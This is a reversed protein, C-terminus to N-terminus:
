ALIRESVTSSPVSPPAFRQQIASKAAIKADYMASDAEELLATPLGAGTLAKCGIAGKVCLARGRWDVTLSNLQQELSELRRVLAVANAHTLLLVFEDGGMRAAHDTKRIFNALLNAVARLAADGAEHGFNDNIMKFDNLDIMVLLAGPSQGRMIRENEISIASLLGRRNALGTLEDRTALTELEEIRRQQAEILEYAARLDTSSPKKETFFAPKFGKTQTAAASHMMTM